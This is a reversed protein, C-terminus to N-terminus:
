GATWVTRLRLEVQDTESGVRLQNLAAVMSPLALLTEAGETGSAEDVHVARVREPETLTVSAVTDARLILTASYLRGSVPVVEIVPLWQRQGGQTQLTNTSTM